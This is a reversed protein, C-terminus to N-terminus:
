FPITKVKLDWKYHNKRKECNSRKWLYKFFCITDPVFSLYFFFEIDLVLFPTIRYIKWGTKKLYITKTMKKLVVNLNKPWKFLSFFNELFRTKITNEYFKAPMHLNQCLNLFIYYIKIPHLFKSIKGFYPIELSPIKKAFNILLCWILFNKLYFNRIIGIFFFQTQKQIWISKCEIKWLFHVRSVEGKIYNIIVVSLLKLYFLHM